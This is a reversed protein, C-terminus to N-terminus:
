KTRVFEYVSGPAIATGSAGMMSDEGDVVLKWYYGGDLDYDARIGNVYKIYLGYAGEEGACLGAALMAEALDTKDTNLTITITKDEATVKVTVATAGDGVTADKQYTAAEWSVPVPTSCASLLLALLLLLPVVRLITKTQKM